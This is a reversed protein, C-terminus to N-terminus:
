ALGALKRCSWFGSLLLILLGGWAPHSWIRFRRTMLNPEPLAALEQLLVPVESVTTVRGRSIESIEKLVDFRAPQGIQEREQGQVSMTTELRTDTEDCTTILQHQGGEKPTFTGTFLGWSDEGAALLRISDKQGSPSTVQVTVVGDRLPEGTSQMVNANLAVENKAEPRDPSYFLRM